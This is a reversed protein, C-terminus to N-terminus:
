WRLGYSGLLAGALTVTGIAITYWAAVFLPSDDTCNSAYLTAALAASALGAVAGALTPATPAGRSLGFLLGALPALSLLPIITLCMRANSGVLRAAWDAPPIASFELLCAAVLAAPAILLAWLWRRPSVGPRSLLWTLALAPVLLTITFVFKFQFLATSSAAVIDPRFGIKWFFVLGTLSAGGLACLALTRAIPMAISSRDAVLAAILNETKM